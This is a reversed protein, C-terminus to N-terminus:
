PKFLNMLRSYFQFVQKDEKMQANLDQQKQCPNIQQRNENVAVIQEALKICIRRLFENPM